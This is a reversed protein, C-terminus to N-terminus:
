EGRGMAQDISSATTGDIISVAHGACMTTVPDVALRSTDSMPKSVGYQVVSCARSSDRGSVSISKM